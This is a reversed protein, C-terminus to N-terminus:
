ARPLDRLLPGPHLALCTNAAGRCWRVGSSTGSSTRVVRHCSKGCTRSPSLPTSATMWRSSTAFASPNAESRRSSASRPM